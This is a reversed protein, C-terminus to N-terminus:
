AETQIINGRNDRLEKIWWQRSDDATVFRLHSAMARLRRPDLDLTRTVFDVLNSGIELFEFGDHEFEFVKGIDSGSAPVLLYNGSQPIMGVVIYDKIWSPLCEEVEDEDVMELWPRFEDNLEHWQSPSAIFYAADGSKQDIYMTLNEYTGYFEKFSPINPVALASNSPSGIHRFQVIKTNQKCNIEECIFQGTHSDVAARLADLM